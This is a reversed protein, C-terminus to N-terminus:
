PVDRMHVASRGSVAASAADLFQRQYYVVQDHLVPVNVTCHANPCAATVPAEALAPTYGWYVRMRAANPGSMSSTVTMVTAGAGTARTQFKASGALTGCMVDFQNGSTSATLVPDSWVYSRRALGGSDTVRSLETSPPRVVRLICPQDISLGAAGYTLIAQTSLPRVWTTISGTPVVILSLTVQTPSGQPPTITVFANYEGPFLGAPDATVTFVQPTNGISPTISFVGYVDSLVATLAVDSPLATITFTQPAPASGGLTYNFAIGPVDSKLTTNPSGTLTFSVPVTVTPNTVGSSTITVTANYTGATLAGASAACSVTGPTTVSAPSCSLWSGDETVSVTAPSTSTIMIDQPAPDSGGVMATFSLSSPSRALSNGTVTLCVAVTVPSNSVGATVSSGTVVAKYQGAALGNCNVSVTGTVPSNSSQPSHVLWPANDSFQFMAQGGSSSWTLSQSPPAAGGEVCSFAIQAQSAALLISSGGNQATGFRLVGASNTSVPNPCNSCPTIGVTGVVSLDVDYFSGAPLGVIYHTTASSADFSYTLPVAVTESSPALVVANYEGKVQGGTWNGSTVTVAAQASPSGAAEHAELLAFSSDNTKAKPTGTGDFYEARWDTGESPTIRTFESTSRNVLQTQFGAFASSNLSATPRLFRVNGTNSGNITAIYVGANLPMWDGTAGTYTKTGTTNQYYDQWLFTNLGSPEAYMLYGKSNDRVISGMSAPSVVTTTLMQDGETYTITNNTISPPQRFHLMYRSPYAALYNVTDAVVVLSPRIYLWYRTASSVRQTANCSSSPPCRYPRGMNTRAYVYSANSDDYNTISPDGEATTGTAPWLLGYYPTNHVSGNAANTGWGTWEKTLWYGKRNIGFDGPAGHSHTGNVPGAALYAWTADPSTFSDRASVINLGVDKRQLPLSPRYDVSENVGAVQWFFNAYAATLSTDSQGSLNNMWFSIKEADSMRSARAAYFRLIVGTRIWDVTFRHQNGVLVDAFPVPEYKNTGTAYGPLPNKSPVSSTHHILADVVYSDWRGILGSTDQGTATEITEAVELHIPITQPGYEAGEYSWGDSMYGPPNASRSIIGGSFLSTWRTLAADYTSQADRTSGPEDWDSGLAAAAILSSALDAACLNSGIGVASCTGGSTRVQWMASLYMLVNRLHYWEQDKTVGPEIEDYALAYRRIYYRAQNAGHIADLNSNLGTGIGFFVSVMQGSFTGLATTDVPCPSLYKYKSGTACGTLRGKTPDAADAHFTFTNAGFQAWAGMGGAIVVDRDAGPAVGHSCDFTVEPTVDNTIALITCIKSSYVARISQLAYQKALDAYNTRTGGFPQKDIVYLLGFESARNSAESAPTVYPHYIDLASVFADYSSKIAPDSSTAFSSLEAARAPTLMVRPRNTVINAGSLSLAVGVFPILYRM